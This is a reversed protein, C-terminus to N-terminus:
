RGLEGRKGSVYSLWEPSGPEILRRAGEKGDLQNQQAIALTQFQQWWLLFTAIINARQGTFEVKRGDPWTIRIWQGRPWELGTYTGNRDQLYEPGEWEMTETLPLGEYKLIERVASFYGKQEALKERPDQGNQEMMTRVGHEVISVYIDFWDEAARAKALALETRARHEEAERARRIAAEGMLPNEIPGDM